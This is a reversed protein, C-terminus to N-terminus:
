RCSSKRDSHESGTLAAFRQMQWPGGFCGDVIARDRTESMVGNMVYLLCCCLCPVSDFVFDFLSRRQRPDSEAM